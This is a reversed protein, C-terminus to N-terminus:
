CTTRSRERSECGQSRRAEEPETSSEQQCCRQLVDIHISHCAQTRTGIYKLLRNRDSSTLAGRICLCPYMRKSKVSSWGGGDDERDVDGDNRVDEYDGWSFGEAPKEGPTPAVRMVRSITPYDPTELM